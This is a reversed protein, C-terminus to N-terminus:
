WNRPLKTDGRHRRKKLADQRVRQEVSRRHAELERESWRKRFPAEIRAWYVNLGTAQLLPKLGLGLFLLLFFYHATYEPFYLPIVLAVALLAHFIGRSLPGFEFHTDRKSM